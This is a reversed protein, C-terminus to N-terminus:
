YAIGQTVVSFVFVLEGTELMEIVLRPNNKTADPTIGNLELVREVQHM